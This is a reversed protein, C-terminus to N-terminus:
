HIVINQYVMPTCLYKKLAIILLFLKESGASDDTRKCRVISIFFDIYMSILICLCGTRVFRFSLMLIMCVKYIIEKDKDKCIM